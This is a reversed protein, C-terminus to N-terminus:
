HLRTHIDTEYLTTKDQRPKDQGSQPAPIDVCHLVHRKTRVTAECLGAAELVRGFRVEAEHRGVHNVSDLDTQRRFAKM